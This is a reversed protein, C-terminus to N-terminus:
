LAKSEEKAILRRLASRMLPACLIQGQGDQQLLGKDLLSIWSQEVVPLPLNCAQALGAPTAREWLVTMLLVCRSEADLQELDLLLRDALRPLYDLPMGFRQLHLTDKILMPNSLRQGRIQTNADPSLRKGRAYFSMAKGVDPESLRRLVMSQAFDLALQAQRSLILLLAGAPQKQVASWIAALSNQYAADLADVHDLIVLVPRNQSTFAQVAALLLRCPDPVAQADETNLHHAEQLVQDWDADSLGFWAHLCQSLALPLDQPGSGEDLRAQMMERVGELVDQRSFDILLPQGGDRVIYSRLAEALRSKGSGLDGHIRYAAQHSQRSCQQWQAVLQEFEPQCGYLPDNMWKGEGLSFYVGEPGRHQNIQWDAM